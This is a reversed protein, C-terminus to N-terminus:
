QRRRLKKPPADLLLNQTPVADRKLRANKTDLGLSRLVNLNTQYEEPLFHDSCVFGSELPTTDRVIHKALKIHASHLPVIYDDASGVLLINKFHTLGKDHSLRYLYTKRVDHSDALMMQKLSATNEFRQLYWM